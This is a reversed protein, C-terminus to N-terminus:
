GKMGVHGMNYHGNKFNYCWMIGYWGAVVAILPIFSPMYKFWKFFKSNKMQSQDSRQAMIFVFAAVGGLLNFGGIVYTEIGFQYRSQHSIYGIKNGEKHVWPTNRISSFMGGGIIFAWAAMCVISYIAMSKRVKDIVGRCFYLLVPVTIIFAVIYQMKPLEMKSGFELWKIKSTSVIWNGIDEASRGSTLSYQYKTPISKFFKALPIEKKSKSPPIMVLTPATSLGLKQFTGRNNSFDANLIFVDVNDTDSYLGNDTPIKERQEEITKALSEIAPNM